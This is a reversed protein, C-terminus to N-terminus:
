SCVAIDTKHEILTNIITTKKYNQWVNVSSVYKLVM